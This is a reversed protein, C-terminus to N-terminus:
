NEPAQLRLLTLEPPSMIRLPVMATGLGRNIYLRTDGWEFLGQMYPRGIEVPVIPPGILPLRIQGGHTHGSLQVDVGSAAAWEIVDPSHALLITVASDAVQSMLWPIAEREYNYDVWGLPDGGTPVSEFDEFMLTDGGLTYVSLDDFQRVGEGASWLGITGGKFAATSDVAEAQWHLPEAEDAPWIRARMRQGVASNECEIRFRHWRDADLVVPINVDDPSDVGHHAFQFAGERARIRLRYFRDYGRDFQSCFIFGIGGEAPHLIRFRGSYGYNKWLRGNLWHSYSNKESSKAQMVKGGDSEVVAFDAIERRNFWPFDVGLICISDGGVRLEAWDNVLVRAGARELVEMLLDSKEKDNSFDNNGRCAFVPATIGAVFAEVAALARRSEAAQPDELMGKHKLFDGTIVVADCRQQNILELLRQEYAGLGALHLDSVHLLTLGQKSQVGRCPIKIRRIEVQTKEWLGWFVAALCICTVLILSYLKM